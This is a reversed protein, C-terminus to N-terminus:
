WRVKAQWRRGDHDRATCLVQAQDLSCTGQVVQAQPLDLTRVSSTAMASLQVRIPWSPECRSDQCRMPQSGPLLVGAFLLQQSTSSRGRAVPLFRISLLGALQQDLRVSRCPLREPEKGLREQLQIECQQANREWRGFDEGPQSSDPESRATRPEPRSEQQERPPRPSRQRRTSRENQAAGPARSPAAPSSPPASAPARSGTADTGSPSGEPQTPPASPSAPATAEASPRDPEAAAGPQPTAPLQSPAPPQKIAPSPAPASTDAMPPGPSDTQAVSAPMPLWLGLLLAPALGASRLSGPQRPPM